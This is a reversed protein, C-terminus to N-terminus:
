SKWDDLEKDLKRFERHEVLEQDLKKWARNLLVKRLSQEKKELYVREIIVKLRKRSKKDLDRKRKLENLQWDLSERPPNVHNMIFTHNFM